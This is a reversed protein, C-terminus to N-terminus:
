PYVQKAVNVKILHKLRLQLNIPQETLQPSFFLLGELKPHLESIPNKNLKSDFDRLDSDYQLLREKTLGKSKLYNLLRKRNVSTIKCATFGKNLGKEDKVHIGTVLFYHTTIKTDDLLWGLRKENNKLYSLEFTFTPLNKNLYDLQAKEDIFVAENEPFVLDVGKHQLTLDEVREFNLNLSNYIDDLYKGLQKEKYLDREFHSM